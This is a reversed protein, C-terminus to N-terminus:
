RCTAVCDGGCGYEGNVKASHVTDEAQRQKHNREISGFIVPLWVGDAGVTYGDPTTLNM